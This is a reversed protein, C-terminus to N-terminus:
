SVGREAGQLRNCPVVSRLTREAKVAGVMARYVPASTQLLRKCPPTPQRLLRRPVGGLLVRRPGDDDVIDHLDELPAHARDVVDREARARALEHGEDARAAAALGRQQPEHGPEDREGLPRDRDVPCLDGVGPLVDRQHELLRRQQRPAGRELVRHQGAPELAAQVVRGLALRIRQEVEDAEAAELVGVRAVEGAAHLLADGEGAQEHDADLDEEEVLGEGGDVLDGALAEVDLQQTDVLARGGGRHEHRVVDRLRDQEGVAHDDHRGPGAPDGVDDVHRERARARGLHGGLGRELLEHQAGV